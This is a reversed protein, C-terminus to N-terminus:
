SVLTQLFHLYRLSMLLWWLLECLTNIIWLLPKTKFFCLNINKQNHFIKRCFYFFFHSVGRKVFNNIFNQASFNHYSAISAAAHLGSLRTLIMHWLTVKFSWSIMFLWTIWVIHNIIQFTFLLILIYSSETWKTTFRKIQMSKDLSSAGIILKFCPQWIAIFM